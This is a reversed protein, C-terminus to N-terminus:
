GYIYTYGNEELSLHYLIQRCHLLGRNSGQTLFIGQLLSHSGVRTSKGSSDWPCLPRTPICDVPDYLQVGSVHNLLLLLLTVLVRKMQKGGFEGGMWAPVYCQASNGTSYLLDKNTVWILYLWTYKCKSGVLAPQYLLSPVVKHECLGGAVLLPCCQLKTCPGPRRAPCTWLDAAQVQKRVAVQIKRLSCLAKGYKNGGEGSQCAHESATCTQGEHQHCTPVPLQIRNGYRGLLSFQGLGWLSILAWLWGM